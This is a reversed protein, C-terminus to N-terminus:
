KGYDPEDILRRLTESREFTITHQSLVVMKERKKLGLAKEVGNVIDGPKFNWWGKHRTITKTRAKYLEITLSFSM